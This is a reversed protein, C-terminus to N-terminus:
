GEKFWVQVQDHQNMNFDASSSSYSTKWCGYGSSGGCGGSIENYANNNYAGVGNNVQGGDGDCGARGDRQICIGGNSCTVRLQGVNVPLFNECGSGSWDGTVTYEPTFSNHRVHRLVVASPRPREKFPIVYNEDSPNGYAYTGLGDGQCVSDNYCGGPNNM